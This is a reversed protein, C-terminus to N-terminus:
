SRYQGRVYMYWTKCEELVEVPLCWTRLGRAIARDSMGRCVLIHDVNALVSLRVVLLRLLRTRYRIREYYPYNTISQNARAYNTKVKRPALVQQMLKRRTICRQLSFALIPSTMPCSCYIRWVKNM